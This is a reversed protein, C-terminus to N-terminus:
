RSADNTGGRSARDAIVLDAASPGNGGARARAAREAWTKLGLAASAEGGAVAELDRRSVLLRNGERHASLRGSWVWRRITEPHRGTLTAAARVDLQENSRAAGAM